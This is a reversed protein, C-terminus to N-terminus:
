IRRSFKSLLLVLFVVMSAGSLLIGLRLSRPRYQFLVEHEGAPIPLKSFIGEERELLAPVGDVSAEWGPYSM